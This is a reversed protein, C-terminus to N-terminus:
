ESRLSLATKAAKGNAKRAAEIIFARGCDVSLEGESAEGAIFPRFDSFPPADMPAPPLAAVTPRSTPSRAKWKPAAVNVPTIVLRVSATLAGNAGPPAEGAL